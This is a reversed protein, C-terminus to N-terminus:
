AKAKWGAAAVAKAEAPKLQCRTALVRAQRLLYLGGFHAAPVNDGAEALLEFVDTATDLMCLLDFLLTDYQVSPNLALHAGNCGFNGADVAAHMAAVSRDAFPTAHSM